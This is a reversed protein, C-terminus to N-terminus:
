KAGGFAILSRSNLARGTVMICNGFTWLGTENIVVADILTDFETGKLADRVADSLRYSLNAGCAKGSLIPRQESEPLVKGELDGFSMLGVKTTQSHGCGVLTAAFVLLLFIRLM